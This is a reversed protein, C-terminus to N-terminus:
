KCAKVFEVERMTAAPVAWWKANEEPDPDDTKIEHGAIDYYNAERVRYAKRHCDYQIKRRYYAVKEFGDIGLKQKQRDETLQKRFAPLKGDMPRVREFVESINDRKHTISMIYYSSIEDKSNGIFVDQCIANFTCALLLSLLIIRKMLINKLYCIYIFLEKTGSVHYNHNPKANVKM